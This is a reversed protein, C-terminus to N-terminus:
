RAPDAFQAAAQLVASTGYRAVYRVPLVASDTQDLPKLSHIETMEQVAFFVSVAGKRPHRLFRNM